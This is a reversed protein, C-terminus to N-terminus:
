WKSAYIFDAAPRDLWQVSNMALGIGIAFKARRIGTLQSPTSHLITALQPWTLGQEHRQTDLAENLLTLNWRLRRDPGVRPLAEDPRAVTGSLFSEPTRELWRLMFLAHQCSTAGRERMGTITSPSIPHDRRRENLESSLEWIAKAVGSWTLGEAVRKTDLADYLAVAYFNRLRIETV